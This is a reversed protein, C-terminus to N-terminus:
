AAADRPGNQYAAVYWDDGRKVVIWSAFIARADAVEKEGPALVGGETTLVASDKTLINLNIPQGTVQTGKFPGTFAQAMFSRIGDRGKKFVGPLIMTGDETFVDAFADADHNAWAKGIRGPLAAIASQDAESPVTAPASPDITTM